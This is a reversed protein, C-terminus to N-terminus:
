DPAALRQKRQELAADMELQEDATMAFGVMWQPDLRLYVIEVDFSESPSEGYMRALHRDLDHWPATGPELFAVRGHVWVGMGDRPTWAASVAPRARMHRAKLASAATSFHWRGHLFHGDVASLRPEGARTTTALNLVCVDTCAAAM